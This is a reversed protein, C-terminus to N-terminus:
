TAEPGTAEPGTSAPRQAPAFRGLRLAIAALCRALYLANV